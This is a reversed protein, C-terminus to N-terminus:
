GHLAKYVHIKVTIGPTIYFINEHKFGYFSSKYQYVTNKGTLYMFYRRKYHFIDKIIKEILIMYFDCLFVRIKQLIPNYTVQTKM